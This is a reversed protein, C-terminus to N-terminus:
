QSYDLPSRRLRSRFNKHKLSIEMPQADNKPSLLPVCFVNESIQPPLPERSGPAGGQIRWQGDSFTRVREYGYTPLM